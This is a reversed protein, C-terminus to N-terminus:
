DRNDRQKGTHFANQILELEMLRENRARKDTEYGTVKLLADEQATRKLHHGKTPSVDAGGDCRVGGQSRDCRGDDHCKGEVATNSIGALGNGGGDGDGHRQGDGAQEQGHDATGQGGSHDM